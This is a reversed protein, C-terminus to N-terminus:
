PLLKVLVEFYKDYHTNYSKSASGRGACFCLIYFGLSSMNIGIQNEILRGLAFDDNIDHTM